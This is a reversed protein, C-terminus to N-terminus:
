AKMASSKKVDLFRIELLGKKSGIFVLGFGITTIPNQIDM